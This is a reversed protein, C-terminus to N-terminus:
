VRTEAMEKVEYYELDNRELYFRFLMVKEKKEKEEEFAITIVTDLIASEGIQIDKFEIKNSIYNGNFKSILDNKIEQETKRMGNYIISRDNKPENSEYFLDYIFFELDSKADFKDSPHFDEYTFCTIMGEIGCYDTEHETLEETLFKYFEEDSVEDKEIIDVDINHSNYIDLVKELENELNNPNLKELPIFVPYELIEIVKKREANKYANEYNEINNLFQNMIEPPATEEATYSKMGFKEELEKQKKKNLENFYFSNLDESYDKEKTM